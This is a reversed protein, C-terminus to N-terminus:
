QRFEAANIVELAAILTSVSTVKNSSGIKQTQAKCIGRLRFTATEATKAVPSKDTQEQKM